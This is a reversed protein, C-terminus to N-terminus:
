PKVGISDLWATVFREFYPSKAVLASIEEVPVAAIWATLEANQKRLAQVERHLDNAIEALPRTLEGAEEITLRAHHESGGSTM